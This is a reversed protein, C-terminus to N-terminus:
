KEPEQYGVNELFESLTIGLALCIKHLNEITVNSNYKLVRRITSDGLRTVEGLSRASWGQDLMYSQLVVSIDEAINSIKLKEDIEKRIEEKRSATKYKV